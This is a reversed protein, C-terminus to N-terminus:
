HGEDWDIDDFFTKLYDEFAILDRPAEHNDTIVKPQAGSSVTIITNPLDSIFLKRQAPYSDEMFFIGRAKIERQVSSVAERSVRAEFRGTRKTFKKGNWLVRGDSFLTAEYVPCRGYCPTTKISAVVFPETMMVIDKAREEEKHGTKSDMIVKETKPTCSAGLLIIILVLSFFYIFEKM